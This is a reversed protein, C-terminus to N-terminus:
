LQRLQQLLALASAEDQQRAMLRELIYADSRAAAFSLPQVADDGSVPPNILSTLDITPQPPHFLMRNRDPMQQSLIYTAVTLDDSSPYSIVNRANQRHLQQFLPGVASAASLNLPSPSSLLRELISSDTWTMPNSATTLRGPLYRSALDLNVIANEPLVHNNRSPLVNNLFPRNVQHLTSSQRPQQTFTSAAPRTVVTNSDDNNTNYSSQLPVVTEITIPAMRYFNPEPVETDPGRAGNGNKPLRPICHTLDERGRLFFPHHYGNKDPGSTIRTFRYLNLQRQFSTYRTQRFWRATWAFGYL